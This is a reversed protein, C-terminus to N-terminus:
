ITPSIGKIDEISWGIAAKHVSLVELLRTEEDQNLESSVIVPKREEEDLYAYKLSTPLEKLELRPPTALTSELEGKGVEEIENISEEEVLEEEQDELFEMASAMLVDLKRKLFEESEEEILTDVSNVHFSDHARIPYAGSEFLKFEIVEDLVNMTLKGDHVDVIARATAM